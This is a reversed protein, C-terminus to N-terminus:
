RRVQSAGPRPGFLARGLRISTAGAEVAWEFDESMGMSLGGVGLEGALGALRAFCAKTGDRDGAPGVTMLGLVDLGAERGHAVLPAAAEPPCGHKAPDGTLNVQIYVAGRPQAGAVADIAEPRDMAEWVAVFPALARTRRRQLAGLLHWRVGTVGTAKGVLEQAYNEGLDALGAALAVEVIGAPFGKTVAVIEVGRASGGIEDLRRRVTELRDTVESMSPLVVQPLVDAATATM